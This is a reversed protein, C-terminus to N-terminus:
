IFFSYSCLLTEGLENCPTSTDTKDYVCNLHDDYIVVCEVDKVLQFKFYFRPELTFANKIPQSYVKLYWPQNEM